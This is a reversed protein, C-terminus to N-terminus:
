DDETSLVVGPFNLKADKVKFTANKLTNTAPIAPDANPDAAQTIIDTLVYNESWTWILNVECNILPM